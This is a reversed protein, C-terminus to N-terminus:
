RHFSSQLYSESVQLRKLGLTKVICKGKRSANQTTETPVFLLHKKTKSFNYFQLKRGSKM